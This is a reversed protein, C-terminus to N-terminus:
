PVNLEVQYPDAMPPHPERKLTLAKSHKPLAPVGTEKLSSFVQAKGDGGALGSLKAYERASVCFVPLNIAQSFARHSAHVPQRLLLAVCTTTASLSRPTGTWATNRRPWKMTSSVSGAASTRPSHAARTAQCTATLTWREDLRPTCHTSNRALACVRNKEKQLKTIRKDLRTVAATVSNM